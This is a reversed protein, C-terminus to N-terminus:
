RYLKARDSFDSFIGDVELSNKLFKFFEQDTKFGLPLNDSRHTYPHVKLGLAHANKVLGNPKGAKDVLQGLWPGVGQAYQSIEELGKRSKYYEYDVSSEKWSNEALLAVMPMKAGLDERMRRLTPPHFCQLFINASAQNYGYKELVPLVIKAIDKGESMHFEPAKLEPYIGINTGRTKNLGHILEIFEVLTPVRFQSKGYPFRPPYSLKQTKPDISDMASLKKIEDLTFDIVYYRGDVRKRRPFLRAVNTTQDLHINHLIVPVSDRTLVIDPEIYDVGFSHALAASELTHEPLYGSAGRHAIITLQKSACSAFFSLLLLIFLVRSLQNYLYEKM